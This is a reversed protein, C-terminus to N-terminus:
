CRSRVSMPGLGRGLIRLRLDRCGLSPEFSVLVFGLRDRSVNRLHFGAAGRAFTKRPLLIRKM